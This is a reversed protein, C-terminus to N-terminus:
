INKSLHWMSAGIVFVCLLVAIGRDIKDDKKTIGPVRAIGFSIEYGLQIRYLMRFGWLLFFTYGLINADIGTKIFDFAQAFAFFGVIWCIPKYFRDFGDFFRRINM